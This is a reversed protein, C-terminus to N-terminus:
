SGCGSNIDTVEIEFEEPSSFEPDGNIVAPEYYGTHNVDLILGETNNKVFIGLEELEEISVQITIETSEEWKKSGFAM